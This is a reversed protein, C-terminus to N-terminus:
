FRSQREAMDYYIYQQEILQEQQQELENVLFGLTEVERIITTRVAEVGGTSRWEATPVWPYQHSDALFSFMKGLVYGSIRDRLRAATDVYYPKIRDDRLRTLRINLQLLMHAVVAAEAKPAPELPQANTLWSTGYFDSAYARRALTLTNEPKLPISEGAAMLRILEPDIRERQETVRPDQSTAWAQQDETTEIMVEPEQGNPMIRVSCQDPDHIVCGTWGGKTADDILHATFRGFVLYDTLMWPLQREVTSDEVARQFFEAAKEDPVGCLVLQKDQFALERWITVAVDVVGLQRLLGRYHQNMQQVSTFQQM